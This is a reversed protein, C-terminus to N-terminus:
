GLWASHPAPQSAELTVVEKVRLLLPPPHGCTVSHVVPEDDPMELITATVFLEEAQELVGAENINKCISRDLHAALEPLTCPHHSAERFAGIVMATASVAPLGKGRVDAIILRTGMPTRM